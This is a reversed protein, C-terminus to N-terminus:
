LGKQAEIYQAAEEEFLRHMTPMDGGLFEAREIATILAVRVEFVAEDPSAPMVLHALSVTYSHPTTQLVILEAGDDAIARAVEYGFVRHSRFLPQNM